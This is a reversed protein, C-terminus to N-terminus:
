GQQLEEEMSSRHHAPDVAETPQLPFTHAVLHMSVSRRENATMNGGRLKLLGACMAHLELSLPVPPSKVVLTRSIELQQETRSRKGDDTELGVLRDFTSLMLAERHRKRAPLQQDTIDFPLSANPLAGNALALLRGGVTPCQNCCMQSEAEEDASRRQWAVAM